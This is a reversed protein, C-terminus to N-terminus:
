RLYLHLQWIHTTLVLCINFNHRSPRSSPFKFIYYFHIWGLPFVSNPQVAFEKYINIYRQIDVYIQFNLGYDRM